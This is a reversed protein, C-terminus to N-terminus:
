PRAPPEKLTLVQVFYGDIRLHDRYCELTSDCAFYDLHRDYRLRTHFKYPEFNLLRRFFAFAASKDLREIGLADELQIVFSAAKNNLLERARALDDEVITLVKRGSLMEAIAEQPRNVLACLKSPSAGARNWGEYMLVFFIDLTYLDDSKSSLFSIRNSIAQEVVTNDYHRHPIPAHDRKLLSQYIRFREDLTRVAGEFRRAAHDREAHDLCEADVGSVRFVVGLDGSKTLFTHEDVFGFLGILASMAGADFYEKGIQGIRIM